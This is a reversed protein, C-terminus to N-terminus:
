RAWSLKPVAQLTVPSPAIVSKASLIESLSFVTSGSSALCAPHNLGSLLLFPVFWPSSVSLRFDFLLPLFDAVPSRLYSTNFYLFRNAHGWDSEKKIFGEKFHKKKLAALLLLLDIQTYEKGYYIISPSKWFDARSKLH